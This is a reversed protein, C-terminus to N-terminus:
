TAVVRQHITGFLDRGGADRAAIEIRDGPELFRTRPAGLEIM